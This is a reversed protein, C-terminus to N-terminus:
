SIQQHWKVDTFDDMLKYNVLFILIPLTTSVIGSNRFKAAAKLLFSSFKTDIYIPAYRCM